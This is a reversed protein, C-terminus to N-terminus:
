LADPIYRHNSRSIVLRSHHFIEMTESHTKGRTPIIAIEIDGGTIHTSILSICIKVFTNEIM